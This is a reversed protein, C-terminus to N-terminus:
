VSGLLSKLMRLETEAVTGALEGRELRLFAEERTTGLMAMAERDALALLEERTLVSLGNRDPEEQGPAKSRRPRSARGSRGPPRARLVM